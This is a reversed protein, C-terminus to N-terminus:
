REDALARYRRGLFQLVAWDFAAPNDWNVWHSSRPIVVLDADPIRRRMLRAQVQTFPYRDSVVVLTPCAVEHLRGRSSFDVAADWIRLYSEREAAYRRMVARAYSSAGPTSLSLGGALVGVMAKVPLARLMWQLFATRFPFPEWLEGRPHYWTDALILAAVRDPARLALAQAVMGGLSHGLVAVESLGLADLTALVSDAFATVTTPGSLAPASGHGPLDLAIVQYHRTYTDVHSRWYGRDVLAGHLLLLPPGSGLIDAPLPQVHTPAM